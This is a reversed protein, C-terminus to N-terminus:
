SEYVRCRSMEANIQVTQPVTQTDLLRRSTLHGAPTWPEPVAAAVQVSVVRGALGEV